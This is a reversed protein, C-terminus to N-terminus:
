FKIQQHSCDRTIVKILSMREAYNELYSTAVRRYINGNNRTADGHNRIAITRDSEIVASGLKM